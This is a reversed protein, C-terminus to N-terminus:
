MSHYRAFSFVALDSELESIRGVGIGADRSPKSESVRRDERERDV